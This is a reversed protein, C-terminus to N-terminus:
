IAPLKLCSNNINTTQVPFHHRPAGMASIMYCLQTGLVFLQHKLGYLVLQQRGMVGGKFFCYSSQVTSGVFIPLPIFIVNPQGVTGNSVGLWGLLQM